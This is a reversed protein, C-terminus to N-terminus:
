PIWKQRRPLLAAASWPLSVGVDGLWGTSPRGSVADTSVRGRLPQRAVKIIDGHSSM